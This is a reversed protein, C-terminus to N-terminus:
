RVGTEARTNLFFLIATLFFFDGSQLHLNFAPEGPHKTEEQIVLISLSADGAPPRPSFM